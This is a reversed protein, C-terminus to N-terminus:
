SSLVQARSASSDDSNSATALSRSTFVCFAPFPMAHATTIQSNNLDATANYNTTWSDHIYTTLLDMSWDLGCRYDCTVFNLCKETNSSKLNTCRHNYYTRDCLDPPSLWAVNRALNESGDELLLGLLCCGPGTDNSLVEIRRGVDFRLSSIKSITNM